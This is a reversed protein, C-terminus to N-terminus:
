SADGTMPLKKEANTAKDRAILVATTPLVADPQRRELYATLTVSEGRNVIVSGSSVKIAFPEEIAPTHWPALFRKVRSAGGSVFFTTAIVLSALLVAFIAIRIAPGSPAARSFNLRRTRTALIATVVLRSIGRYLRLRRVQQTLDDFKEEILRPLAIAPM